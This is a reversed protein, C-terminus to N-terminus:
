GKWNESYWALTRSIGIELPTAHNGFAQVYKNHNVIFPEDFEYMMEVTERAGAIFLGGLRMIFKGMGNMKPPHGAQQFALTLFQRTTVTEANPVHWIQGLAKEQEGLVVLAKGFDDIFTYTHLVDLNGVGEATKGTLVAPFIRDGMVSALVGRGYFDSGRAIAVPVIGQQHAKLLAESMQARTRGKRTTAANPLDEHLPENVAGYMYLNDGVVLKTSSAAVGKVISDQLKQFLTTWQTYAPQVCQYVVTAGQTVAHISAPDYADAAIIEVSEPLTVQGSRNVM